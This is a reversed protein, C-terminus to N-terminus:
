KREGPWSRRASAVHPSSGSSLHGDCDADVRDRPRVVIHRLEAAVNGEVGTKGFRPESTKRADIHAALKRAVSRRQPGDERPVSEIEDRTPVARLESSARGVVFCTGDLRM